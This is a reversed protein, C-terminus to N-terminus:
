GSAPSAYYMKLYDFPIFPVRMKKNQRFLISLRILSNSIFFTHLFIKGLVFARYGAAESNILSGETEKINMQRLSLAIYNFSNHMQIINKLIAKLQASNL